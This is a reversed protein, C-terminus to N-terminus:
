ASTTFGDLRARLVLNGNSVSWGIKQYDVIVEEIIDRPLETDCWITISKDNKLHVETVSDLTDGIRPVVSFNGFRCM